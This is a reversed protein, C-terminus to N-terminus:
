LLTVPLVPLVLLQPHVMQELLAVVVLFIVVLVVVQVVQLLQQLLVIRDVQEEVAVAGCLHVVSRAQLRLRLSEQEVQEVLSRM